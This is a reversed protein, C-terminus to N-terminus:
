IEIVKQITKFQYEPNYYTDIISYCKRRIDERNTSNLLWRKVVLVLDDIDDRKFFDGSENKIIAEFEPVQNKFDSHTIVPTGYVLSHMATLGVNGPSVCLDSNYIISGIEKENYTSGYFWCHEDVNSIIAYEKIKNKEPGDGVIVLNINIGELILKKLLLILYHIKKVATLRGIFILTPNQNKFKDQFINKHILKQRIKIQEKYNLSNYIVHLKEIPINEKVMIKKAYNGYLFVGDSLKFFTRKIIKKLYNENGYWGHTWFYVKKNLVKSLLLVVWTSLCLYEGLIIYEKYNKFILRIAGRQWYIGSYININKLESKFNKLKQYDIKKIDRYYDGFYFDCYDNNDMLSFIGYRYHQAYNYILCKKMKFM